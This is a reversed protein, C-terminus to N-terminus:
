SQTISEEYVINLNHEMGLNDLEKNIDLIKTKIYEKFLVNVDVSLQFSM